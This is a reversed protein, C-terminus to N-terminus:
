DGIKCCRMAGPYVDVYTSSYRTEIGILFEGEACSYPRPRTHDYASDIWRCGTRTVNGNVTLGGNIDVGGSVALNRNVRLDRSVTVSDWLGVERDGGASNNGVIMLKKEGSGDNYIAAGGEGRGQTDWTQYSPTIAHSQLAGDVVLAGTVHYNKATAARASYPVAVIRKRGALQTYDSDGAGKIQIGLYVLDSQWVSDPLPANGGLLVSFRGGHISIGPFADDWLCEATPTECEGSFEASYLEFVFDFVGSQPIGDLDLVGQYAILSESSQALGTGAVSLSFLVLALGSVTRCSM